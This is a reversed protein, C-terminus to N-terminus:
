VWLVPHHIADGAVSFFPWGTIFPPSIIYHVDLATPTAQLVRCWGSINYQLFDLMKKVQTHMDSVIDEYRMVLFKHQAPPEVIWAFTKSWRKISARLFNTWNASTLFNDQGHLEVHSLGTRNGHHYKSGLQRNWESVLAHFPNRVLFIISDFM